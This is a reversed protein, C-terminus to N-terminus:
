NSSYYSSVRIQPCASPQPLRERLFHQGVRELLQAIAVGAIGREFKQVEGDGASLLVGVPPGNGLFVDTRSTTIM